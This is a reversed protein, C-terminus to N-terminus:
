PDVEQDELFGRFEYEHPQVVEGFLPGRQIRVRKPKNTGAVKDMVTGVHLYGDHMLVIWRGIVRSRGRLADMTPM